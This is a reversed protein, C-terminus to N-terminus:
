FVLSGLYANTVITRLLRDGKGVPSDVFLALEMGNPLFYAVCQEKKGSATWAGNKNYLTGAATNIAEDVGFRNDLMYQAKWAPVITNMRRVHHMVNLLERTSLRWGAGGAVSSLDGSDWGPEANLPYAAKYALANTGDNTPVFTAGIVGAPTFVKAQVYNKYHFLAVVDWVQDNIVTENSFATGKAVDGNIIPILIRMLGFNLNQYNYAGVDAALVGTALRLKMTTFDTASGNNKFGSRHTLLHRFTILGVNSGQAWYSPLYDVMKADYSIGKSDLAKVLAVATLFKSVSAVHMRSNQSWGMGLNAPTQAWSWQGVHVLVGNQRVQLMYGAVSDKLIKHIALGFAGLNVTPVAAVLTGPAAIRDLAPAADLAPTRYAIERAPDNDESRADAVHRPAIVHAKVDAVTLGEPLNTIEAATEGKPTAPARPASAVDSCAALFMAIAPALALARAAPYRRGVLGANRAMPRGTPLPHSM